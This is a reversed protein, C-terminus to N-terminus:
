QQIVDVECSFDMITGNYSYSGESPDVTKFTDNQYFSIDHGPYYTVLGDGLLITGDENLLEFESTNEVFIFGYDLANIRFKNKDLWEFSKWETVGPSQLVLANLTMIITFMDSIKQDPLQPWVDESNQSRIEIEGFMSYGAPHVTRKLFTEYTNQSLGSKVKYSFDHIDYNNNLKSSMNNLLGVVNIFKRNNYGFGGSVCRGTARFLELITTEAGSKQGVIVDGPSILESEEHELYFDNEALIYSGDETVMDLDTSANNFFMQNTSFNFNSVTMEPGYSVITDFESVLNYASEEQAITDNDETLLKYMQDSTDAYGFNKIKVKEGIVFINNNSVFASVPFVPRPLEYYDAGFNKFNVQKIGGINAGYGVFSAGSKGLDDAIHLSIANKFGYGPNKINVKSVAGYNSNDVASFLPTSTYGSGTTQALEKLSGFDDVLVDLKGGKGDAILLVFARTYDHGFNNYTISKINRKVTAIIEAGFGVGNVVVQPSTYHEGSNLINVAVIKGGEIVPVLVAGTAAPNPDTVTLTTNPLYSSGSNKVAVTKISTDINLSVDADAGDGIVYAKSGYSYGQGKNIVVVDIFSGNLVRGEVFADVGGGGSIVIPDSSDYGNGGRIIKVGILQSNELVPVFLAGNGLASVPQILLPSIESPDIYGEGSNLINIGVISKLSSVTTDQIITDTIETLIQSGDVEEELLLALGTGTFAPTLVSSTGCSINVTNGSDTYGEGGAVISVSVIKGSDIIPTLVCPIAGVNVTSYTITTDYPYGEGSNLVTVHKVVGNVIDNNVVSEFSHCTAGVGDGIITVTNGDSYGSGGDLVIVGTVQGGVISCQAVFGTGTGNQIVAYAKTYGSGLANMRVQSIVGTSTSFVFEAGEGRGGVTSAVMKSYHHGPNTIQSSKIRFKFNVSNLSIDQVIPEGTETLLAFEDDVLLLVPSLLILPNKWADPCVTYKGRQVLTYSTINGTSSVATPTILFPESYTGDSVSLKDGVSVGISQGVFEFNEVEMTFNVAADIGDIASVVANLDTGDNSNSILKDGVVYGYGPTIIKIIDIGGTTIESIEASIGQGTGSTFEIEQGATYNQGLEQLDLKGISPSVTGYHYDGKTYHYDILSSSIFYVDGSGWTGTKGKIDVTYYYKNAFIITKLNVVEAFGNSGIQKIVLSEISPHINTTSAVVLTSESIQVFEFYDTVEYFNRNINNKLIKVEKYEVFDGEVTKDNLTIWNIHKDNVITSVCTEITGNAYPSIQILECGEIETLAYDCEVAVHCERTFENGSSRFVHDRMWKIEAVENFIANMMFKFSDETGKSTFFNRINKVLTKKNIVVSPPLIKLLSKMIMTAFFDTTSDIDGYEVLNQIMDLPQGSEDMWKYYHEFFKVFLPNSDRIHEPITYKVSHSTKPKLSM